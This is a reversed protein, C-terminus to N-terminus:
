PLKGWGRVGERLPRPFKVLRLDDTNVNEIVKGGASGGFLGAGSFSGPRGAGTRQGTRLYGGALAHRHRTSV